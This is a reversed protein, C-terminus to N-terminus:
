KMFHPFSGRSEAKSALYLRNLLAAYDNESFKKWQQEHLEVTAM